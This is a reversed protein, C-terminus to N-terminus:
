REARNGPPAFFKLAIGDPDRFTAKHQEPSRGWATSTSSGSVPGCIISMALRRRATTTPHSM